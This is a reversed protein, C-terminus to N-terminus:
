GNVMRIGKEEITILKQKYLTGIGKKFNKKSMEFVEVIEEPDSKDHYPLYGDNEKLKDLIKQAHADIMVYGSRQLRLDIKGDERIKQVYGTVHDGETIRTFIENHYIIGLYKQNIIAKYGLETAKWIILQVEQKEELNIEEDEIFDELRTSGALRESEYDFYLYVVHEEGEQMETVQESFPVFLDKPLGWDMFTGHPTNKAVTLPAFSNLTIKPKETTAVMRDESDKYIFVEVSDGEKWGEELYKKPLLVSETTDTLYAGQPEFKLIELNNYQGIEIM